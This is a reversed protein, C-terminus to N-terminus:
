INPIANQNAYDMIVLDQFSSIQLHVFVYHLAIETFPLFFNTAMTGRYTGMQGAKGEAASKKNDMCDWTKLNGTASQQM